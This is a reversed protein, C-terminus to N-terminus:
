VSEDNRGGRSPSKIRPREGRGSVCVKAADSWAAPTRPVFFRTVGQCDPPPPAIAVWLLTVVPVGRRGLGDRRPLWSSSQWRHAPGRGGMSRAM